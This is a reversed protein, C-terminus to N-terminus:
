GCRMTADDLQAMDKPDAPDLGPSGTPFVGRCLLIAYPVFSSVGMLEIAIIFIAYDGARPSPASLYDLPHEPL